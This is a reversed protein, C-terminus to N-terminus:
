RPYPIIRWILHTRISRTWDIPSCSTLLKGDPAHLSLQPPQVGSTFNDVYFSAGPPMTIGHVGDEQSIRDIKGPDQTDLSTSYLQRETPSKATATFYVRRRDEDIGKIARARFDDVTWNGATM